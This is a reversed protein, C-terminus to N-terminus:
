GKLGNDHKNFNTNQSVPVSPSGWFGEAQSSQLCDAEPPDERDGIREESGSGGEEESTEELGGEDHETGGSDTQLPKGDWQFMFIIM